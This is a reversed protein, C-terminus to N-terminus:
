DWNISPYFRILFMTSIFGGVFGAFHGSFSINSVSISIFTIIAINLSMSKVIGLYFGKFVYALACIGGVLGFILGSIGGAVYNSSGDQMIIFYLYPLLTTSLASASVLIFYRSMKYNTEIFRGLNWLSICNVLLHLIGFHIFNATILPFYNKTLLVMQPSFGGALYGQYATMTFSFKISTYLYFLICIIILSITIPYKKLQNILNM